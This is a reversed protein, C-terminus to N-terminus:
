ASLLRKPMAYFDECQMPAHFDREIGLETWDVHHELACCQADFFRCTQCRAVPSSQMGRGALGRGIRDVGTPLSELLVKRRKLRLVMEDLNWGVPVEPQFFDTTKERGTGIVPFFVGLPELLDKTMGLSFSDAASRNENSGSIRVKERLTALMNLENTLKVLEGESIVLAKLGEQLAKDQNLKISFDIGTVAGSQMKKLVLLVPILKETKEAAVQAWTSCKSPKFQDSLWPERDGFLSQLKRYSVKRGKAPDTLGCLHMLVAHQEDAIERDKREEAQGYSRRKEDALSRLRWFHVDPADHGRGPMLALIRDDYYRAADRQARQFQETAQKQDKATSTCAISAALHEVIQYNQFSNDRILQGLAQNQRSEIERYSRYASLDLIQPLDNGNYGGSYEDALAQQVREIVESRPPFYFSDMNAEGVYVRVECSLDGRNARNITQIIRSTDAPIKDFRCYLVELQRVFNLGISFIPSAVLIPKSGIRAEEVEEHLAEQRSVVYCQDELGFERLLIRFPEMKSTSIALMVKPLPRGEDLAQKLRKFLEIVDPRFNDLPHIHLPNRKVPEFEYCCYRSDVLTGGELKTLTGTLMLRQIDTLTGTMFIVSRARTIADKFYTFKISNKCFDDLAVHFEDIVLHYPTLAAREMLKLIKPLSENTTVFTGSSPTHRYDFTQYHFSEVGQALLDQHMQSVLPITQAVYIVVGMKAKERIWEIVAQTKGSGTPALVLAYKSAIFSAFPPVYGASTLSMTRHPIEEFWKLGDRVYAYADESLERLPIVIGDGHRRALQPQFKSVYYSGPTGEDTLFLQCFAEDRLVANALSRGGRPTGSPPVFYEATVVGTNTQLQIRRKAYGKAVQWDHRLRSRRQNAQRILEPLLEPVKAEDQVGQILGQRDEEKLACQIGADFIPNAVFHLQVSSAIPAPDIGFVLEAVGRKNAHIHFFRSDMCFQRLYAGILEGRIRRDLFFFLHVRLGPKLLEGQANLVGSSGSFQYHCTVDRFEAPLKEAILWKIAAVSVVSIGDPVELGDFDMMVWHTGDPHEPFNEKLRQCPQFLDPIGIGRILAARPSGSIRAILESVQRIGSVAFSRAKYLFANGFNQRQVVGDHDVYFRKTLPRDEAVLVTVTPPDAIAANPELVAQAPVGPKYKKM